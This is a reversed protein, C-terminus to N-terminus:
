IIKYKYLIIKELLRDKVFSVNIVPHAFIRDWVPTVSSGSPLNKDFSYVLMRPGHTGIVVENKGNHSVDSIDCCTAIDFKNSGALIIIDKLSNQLVNRYVVSQKRSFVAIINLNSKLKNDHCNELATKKIFNPAASAPSYNVDRYILLQSVPCDLIDTEFKEFLHLELNVLFCQVVGTDYGVCTLREHKSINKFELYTPLSQLSVLEPFNESLEIEKFTITNDEETETYVHYKKDCGALLFVKKGTSLQYHKLQLPIFGLNCYFFNEQFNKYIWKDDTECLINWYFYLYGKNENPTFETYEKNVLSLAIVLGKKKSKYSDISVIQTHSPINTIPVELITQRIGTPTKCYYECCYVKGVVTSLLLKKSGQTPLTVMGYISSQCLKDFNNEHFKM